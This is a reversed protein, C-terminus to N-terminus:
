KKIKMLKKMSTLHQRSKSDLNSKELEKLLSTALPTQGDTYLQRILILKDKFSYNYFEETILDNQNFDNETM